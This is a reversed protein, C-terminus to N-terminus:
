SARENPVLYTVVATALATAAAAQEPTLWNNAVAFSVIPTILAAIAKRRGALWTAAKSM